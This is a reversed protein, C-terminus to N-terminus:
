CIHVELGLYKLISERRYSFIEHVDKQVLWNGGLWGLYGVPLEILVRDKMLTGGPVKEFSHTHHWKKYPGKLQNDVFEFPPNWVAIETKWKMPLGHVKLTYDILTGQEVRETSVNEIHFNLLSPTIKELNRAEAFFEFVQEIPLPLFQEAYMLEKVGDRDRLSEDLAESAHNFKFQFGNRLAKEASVKQSALALQSMDGLLIKLAFSPASLGMPRKLVKALIESFERNVVPQPAVGNIVGAIESKELAWVYLAVLDEIHIWSMWQSGAGIAGGIGVKFPLVMKELALSQPGLVLGTRVQVSRGEFKQAEAEWLKCVNALFDDAPVSDENLLEDGRDGYIGIASASIFTHAKAGLSAILHRTGDVRSKLIKSKSEDNWRQAGVNEGALHFVAEVGELAPHSIAGSELDAEIIEASFPLELFAKKKSRSIVVLDHGRKSLVKGLEKGIFGTAGTILIKM